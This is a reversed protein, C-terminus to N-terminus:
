DLKGDVIDSFEGAEGTGGSEGTNIMEEAPNAEVM